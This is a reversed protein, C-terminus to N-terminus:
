ASAQAPSADLPASACDDQPRRSTVPKWGRLYRTDQFVDLMPEPANRRRFRREAVLPVWWIVATTNEVRRFRRAAVTVSRWASQSAAQGPLM